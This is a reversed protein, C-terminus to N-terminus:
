GGVIVSYFYVPTSLFHALLAGQVGVANWKLIKDSCSMSLTREGRGPKTRLVGTVHYNLGPVLADQKQRGPVCKAGTRHVDLCEEKMCKESLFDHEPLSIDRPHEADNVKLLKCKTPCIHVTKPLRKRDKPVSSSASDATKNVVEGINGDCSSINRYTQPYVAADGGATNCVFFLNM